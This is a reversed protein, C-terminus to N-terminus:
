IEGDRSLRDRSMDTIDILLRELGTRMRSVRTSASGKDRPRTPATRGDEQFVQVGSVVAKSVCPGGARNRGYGILTLSAPGM